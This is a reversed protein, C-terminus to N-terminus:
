FSVTGVSHWLITGASFNGDGCQIGASFHSTTIITSISPIIRKGTATWDTSASVTVVPPVDYTVGFAIKSIFSNGANNTYASGTAVVWRCNASRVGAVGGHNIGGIVASGSSDFVVLKSEDSVVMMTGPRGPNSVASRPGYYARATGPVKASTPAYRPEGASTGSNDTWFFHQSLISSIASKVSRLIEPTDSVFDLDAPRNLNFLQASSASRAM